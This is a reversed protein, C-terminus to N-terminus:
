LCMLMPHLACDTTHSLRMHYGHTIFAHSVRTHYGCKIVKSIVIHSIRIGHVWVRNEDNIVTHSLQTHNNHCKSPTDILHLAEGGEVAEEDGLRQVVVAVQGGQLPQTRNLRTDSDYGRGICLGLHLTQELIHAQGVWTDRQPFM